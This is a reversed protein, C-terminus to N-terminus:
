GFLALMAKFGMMHMEQHSKNRLYWAFGAQPVFQVIALVPGGVTWFMVTNNALVVLLSGVYLEKSLKASIAGLVTYTIGWAIFGVWTEFYFWAAGWAAYAAITCFVTITLLFVAESKSM